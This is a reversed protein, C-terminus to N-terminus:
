LEDKMDVGSDDDEDDDLPEYDDADGYEFDEEDPDPVDDLEIVICAMNDGSRNKLSKLMMDRCRDDPTSEASIAFEMVEENDLGDYVGDSAVVIHSISEDRPFISVDPDTIVAQQDQEVKNSMKLQFDGFARSLALQGNVRPIYTQPPLSVFGGSANIRKTEEPDDPKHDKTAFKVNPEADSMVGDDLLLTRSDGTNFTIIHKHTVIVGTCTCGSTSRVKPDLLARHIDEKHMLQRDYIPFSEELVDKIHAPDYLSMNDKFKTFMEMNRQLLFDAFEKKAYKVVTDGGHGDFVIYLSFLNNFYSQTIVRDEMHNRHGQMVCSGWEHDLSSGYEASNAEPAEELIFTGIDCKPTFRDNALSLPLFLASLKM